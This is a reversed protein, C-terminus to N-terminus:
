EIIEEAILSNSKNNLYATTLEISRQNRTLKLDLEIEKHRLEMALRENDLRMRENEMRMKQLERDKKKSFREWKFRQKELELMQVQIHLRQEELQISHSSMLQKESLAFNSGDPFAQNMDVTIGMVPSKRACDHSGSSNAAFAMDENDMGHKMRKIFCSDGMDGHLVHHEGNNDEEDETDGSQDDEDADENAGRRMEQEDKSRLAVQLSRQLALDHPLNLRNGNHYSCMEEYFLHKSSLIKRVDDKLKDSIHDMADLLAPNEVVKCSTGRGLIDTLRKYRKNLDNFKDECQQPSVYCGREVMVKSIAKWKGRKRCYQSNGGGVLIVIPRLMKEMADTWKMRHWPSGKKGKEHHGDNGEEMLSPDEEDSLSHKGREGKTYDMYLVGHQHNCEPMHNMSLPFTGNMSPNLASGLNNPQQQPPHFLPHSPNQHNIDMSSQLDLVGYSSGPIMNGPQINGEM